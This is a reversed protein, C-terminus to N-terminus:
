QGTSGYGGSGRASDSLSEALIWEVSAYSAVILQAIRDGARVRYSEPGFNVLVVEIEGRYGPDITGPNNLVTLGHRRALGSRPRVQGEYGVPLEICIGTPVTKWGQSPIEVEEAAYLDMGADESAGHAYSPMCASARIKRYRVPVTRTEAM